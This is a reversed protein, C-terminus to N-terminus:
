AATAPPPSHSHFTKSGDPSRMTTTGDSNLAISWGWRHVAILHHFTCLLVLNSLTAPGGGWRWKVVANQGGIANASGHLVNATTTGGALERYAAIDFPDLVDQIRVEATVAHTGENIQGDVSTHSHCDIMGPTIQKGRADIEQTGTPVKLNTGIAAIVGNRVFVDGDEIHVSGDTGDGVRTRM